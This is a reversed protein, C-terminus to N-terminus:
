ILGPLFRYRVKNAYEEWQKGFTERLMADERPARLIVTSKIYLCSLWALAIAKGIASSEFVRAETWWSGPSIECLTFAAAIFILGTYSPHRVFAYPGSTILQHKNRISLEFTFFRGLERYCAIRILVGTVGLLVGLMFLPSIFTHATPSTRGCLLSKIERLNQADALVFLIETAM